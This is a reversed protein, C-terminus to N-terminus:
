ITNGRKEISYKKPSIGKFKKFVTSFYNSDNFGCKYSVETVSIDGSSLLEAAKTIRIHNIYENVGMGTIYKFKKSLYGSSVHTMDALFELSLNEAFHNFIYVASKEVADNETEIPIPNTNKIVRGLFIFLRALNMKMSFDFYDDNEIQDYEMDSFIKLVASRSAQPVSIVTRKFCEEMEGTLEPYVCDDPFTILFREIPMDAVSTTKHPVYKDIFVIDGEKVTYIKNAVFYRREGKAQYYIEKRKHWHHDPMDDLSKVKLAEFNINYETPCYVQM